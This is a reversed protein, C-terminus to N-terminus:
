IRGEATCMEVISRAIGCRSNLEFAVLRHLWDDTVQGKPSM